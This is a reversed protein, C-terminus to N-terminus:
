SWSLNSFVVFCFGQIPRFILLGWLFPLASLLDAQVQSSYPVWFFNDQGGALRSESAQLSSVERFLREWLIAEDM